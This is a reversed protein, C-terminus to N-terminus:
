LNKRDCVYTYNITYLKQNRLLVNQKKKNIEKLLHIKVCEKLAFYRNECCLQLKKFSMKIIFEHFYKFIKAKQNKIASSCKVTVTRLISFELCFLIKM